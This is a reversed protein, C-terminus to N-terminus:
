KKVQAHKVITKLNSLNIRSMPNKKFWFFKPGRWETPSKDEQTTVCAEKGAEHVFRLDGERDAVFKVCGDLDWLLM